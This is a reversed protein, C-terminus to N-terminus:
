QKVVKEVKIRQGDDGYLSIFYVGNALSSINLQTANYQEMVTKGDVDSLVARVNVGSEIYITESAPNPYIHVEANAQVPIGSAELATYDVYASTGVCGNTDTVPVWYYGVYLAATQWANAGMILGQVQDYWQYDTYFTETYFTNTGGNYTVVPVPLSNVKFSKSVACGTPLTYSITATGGALTTVAASTDFLVTTIVGTATNGSSWVGDSTADYLTDITGGCGTAGGVIPLPLPNITVTTTTSCQSGDTYVITAIGAAVGTVKGTTGSTSAIYGQDSSWTGGTVSDTLTTSTGPCAFMVGHISPPSPNVKVTARAYCGHAITYTVNATGTAIGAILGSSPLVTAISTNSTTWSGGAPLYAFSTTDGICVSDGTGAFITPNAYVTDIATVYGCGTNYTIITTGASVGIVFGGSYSITAVPPITSTWVGGSVGDTLPTATNVCEHLVGNIPTPSLSNVAVAATTVTTPCGGSNTATFTYVGVTAYTASITLNKLTSTFGGPGSWLYSTTGTATGTLSINDGICVPNPTASATVSYVGTCSYTIALQPQTTSSGGEGIISYTNPGSFTSFGISITNGHNSQLFTLGVNLFPLIDTAGAAATDAGWNNTNFAAGSACDAYLTSSTTVTSLDGAYGFISCSDVTAAATDATTYNFRLSASIVTTGGPLGSLNFVAYGRTPTGATGVLMNGDTRGSTAKTYGTEYSGSAGTANVTLVQASVVYHCIFFTLLLYIKKM